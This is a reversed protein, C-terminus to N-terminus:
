AQSPPHRKVRLPQPHKPRPATMMATVWACQSGRLTQCYGVQRQRPAAAMQKVRGRSSIRKHTHANAREQEKLGRLLSSVVSWGWTGGNFRMCVSANYTRITSFLQNTTNSKAKTGKYLGLGRSSQGAGAGASARVRQLDEEEEEGTSINLLSAFYCASARLFSSRPPALLSSM